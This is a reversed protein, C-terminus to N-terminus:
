RSEEGRRRCADASARGLVVDEALTACTPSGCLCCDQGPLGQLLLNMQSLKRIAAAMDADLRLGPRAELPARRRIARAAARSAAASRYRRRSVYPDERLLPSGFCGEDCAYLELVCADAMDGNEIEELVRVVHAMGTVRLIRPDDAAAAAAEPQPASDSASKMLPRVKSEMQSPLVAQGEEPGRGMGLL